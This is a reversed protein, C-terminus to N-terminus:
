EYLIEKKLGQERALYLTYREDEHIADDREHAGLSSKRALASEITLLITLADNYARMADFAYFGSEALYPALAEILSLLEERARSLKEGNRIVGLANQAIKRVRTHIQACDCPQNKCSIDAVQPLPATDADLFAM